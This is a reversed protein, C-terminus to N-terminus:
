LCIPKHFKLSWWHSIQYQQTTMSTLHICWQQPSLCSISYMICVVNLGWLVTYVTSYNVCVCMNTHVLMFIMHKLEEIVSVTWYLYLLIAILPWTIDQGNLALSWTWSWTTSNIDLINVFMMLKKSYLSIHGENYWTAVSYSLDNFNLQM